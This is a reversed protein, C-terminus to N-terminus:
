RRKRWRELHMIEIILLVVFIIAGFISLYFVLQFEEAMVHYQGGISFVLGIFACLICNHKSDQFM